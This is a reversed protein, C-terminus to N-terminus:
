KKQKEKGYITNGGSQKPVYDYMEDKIERRIREKEKRMESKMKEIDYLAGGEGYLDEYMEPYYRKMDEKGIKNMPKTVEGKELDKYLEKNVIKRVDKYLPILGLNGMVELPIRVGVEKEVRKIAAAEKKPEETAKRVILDLTKASPGFPGLMNMILDGADTKKGKKEAPIVTYQLADKYPDYEGERLFDLYNENVREVGYNILSKTANGFDRGLLLSTASSLMGQGLKQEISKEDDEDEDPVFLGALASSLAQTILTYATMRTAVAALLAVGTKRSLTGNGMAANIGTRATIYEYILFRTMFNNFINFGRLMASQNQKPTGKLIGMFANDSAGTLVTKEDAYSKAADLAEKNSAMYRENNEAIKDFDPEAGTIKKFENTFAGFWMPRMVMKDPTAILADAMTEVANQYKKLSINYIQQIKNAVDSQARGGRVGSAQNMISTDILRGSLTDHPFLRNTQKSGVNSMITAANPSLVVSRNKLGAKFDKPAAIMAFAVNSSKGGFIEM